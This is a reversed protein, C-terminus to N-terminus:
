WQIYLALKGFSCDEGIQKYLNSNNDLIGRFNNCPQEDNSTNFDDRIREEDFDYDYIFNESIRKIKVGIAEGNYYYRHIGAVSRPPVNFHCSEVVKNEVNNGTVMTQDFKNGSDQQICEYYGHETGQWEDPQRTTIVKSTVVFFISLILMSVLAEALSFGSKKINNVM